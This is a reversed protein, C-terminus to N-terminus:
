QPALRYLAAHSAHDSITAVTLHLFDELPHKNAQQDNAPSQRCLGLCNWDEDVVAEIRNQPSWSCDARSYKLRLKFPELLMVVAHQRKMGCDISETAVNLGALWRDRNCHIVSM